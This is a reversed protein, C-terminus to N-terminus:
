DGAALGRMGAAVIADATANDLSGGLIHRYLVPGIMMDIAVDADVDARLDGRAVGRDWIARLLHRRPAVLHEELVDRIAPDFQAEGILQAFVRGSAGAYFHLLGRLV